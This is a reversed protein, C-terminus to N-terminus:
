KKLLQGAVDSLRAAKGREEAQSVEDPWLDVKIRTLLRTARDATQHDVSMHNLTLTVLETARALEGREVLLSAIGTVSSLAVTWARIGFATQLATHFQEDAMAFDRTEFALYGLDNLAAAIGWKYNTTQYAELCERYLKNAADREGLGMHADAAMRKLNVWQKLSEPTPPQLELARMLNTKATDYAGSELAAKGVLGRYTAEKAPNGAKGWHYALAANDKSNLAEMAEAIQRHLGPREGEPVEALVGDRLKDHSFQWSNDQVELVAGAECDQLWDNLDRTGAFKQLLDLNQRRGYIAAMRLLPRDEASVREVRRRIIENIGKASVEAPLSMTAVQDLQGAQEALARMVEVLFLPNGETEAKLLQVLGPQHGQDGLMAVSLEEIQYEDLRSLKLLHAEPFREPLNPTEEDRYSGVILIPLGSLVKTLRTLLELSERGAWHLDELILLIPRIQAQLIAEITMILREQAFLPNVEPADPVDKGILDGIDPVLAKLVGAQNDVFNATLSLTRMPSRWMHYPYAGESINQGRLVLIGQVMAQIRVEEILRTKGSGSEGSILWLGGMGDITKYLASTLKSLETERGVFRATQLFSERIASSERPLPQNMAECFAAIARQASGDYRDAPEKSILRQIVMRVNLNNIGDMSPMSQITEQILTQTDDSEIIPRGTFMEYAIVGVAFLDSAESASAGLLTEPAIYGLTGAITNMEAQERTVSLGFDLVKVQGNVVLINAPKLDRHIIGRRHLYALAQLTQIILNVKDQDSKWGARFVSVPNQLLDMTFYPLRGDFGYDLVSNVNPHRLSAMIRFEQALSLFLDNSGRSNFQLSEPSILVRKLAVNQGTLPDLAVHVSGMGGEGLLRILRYRGGIIENDPENNNAQM